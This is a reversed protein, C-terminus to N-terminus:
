FTVNKDFENQLFCEYVNEWKITGIIVSFKWQISAIYWVSALHKGM